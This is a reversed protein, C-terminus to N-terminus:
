GDHDRILYKPGAGYATAERLQQATWADSPCRTVGVYIVKRSHLLTNFFAFLSRFFIDTVQLFDCAWIEGAHAHLFTAWNKGRPRTTHM